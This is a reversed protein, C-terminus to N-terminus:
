SMKPHTIMHLNFSLCSKFHATFIMMFGHTLKTLHWVSSLSSSSKLKEKLSASAMARRLGLSVLMAKQGLYQM